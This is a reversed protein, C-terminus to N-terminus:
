GPARAGLRRRGWRNVPKEILQWSCEALLLTLALTAGLLAFGALGAYAHLAMLVPAHWLYIGYSLDGLHRGAGAAARWRAVPLSIVAYVALLAGLALLLRLSVAWVPSHWISGDAIGPYAVAGLGLLAVGALLVPVPRRLRWDQRTSVLLALALGFGFSDIMAPMQAAWHQLFAADVGPSLWLGSARFALAVLVACLAVRAPRRDMWWPTTLVLLLYLQVESALSWSPPNIAAITEPWLNHIFFLHTFVQWGADPRTWLRPEILVAYVAGTLLYLPVIRLLRRAAFSRWWGAGSRSSQIASLGVVLGSIAFFLDVGVWGGRLWGLWHEPFDPWPALVVAHFGLVMLAAAFRLPDLAEFWASGPASASAPALGAGARNMTAEARRSM